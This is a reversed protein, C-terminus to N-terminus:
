TTRIIPRHLTFIYDLIEARVLLRRVLHTRNNVVFTHGVGGPMGAGRIVAPLGSNKPARGREFGVYLYIYETLSTVEDPSYISIEMSDFNHVDKENECQALFIMAGANRAGSGYQDPRPFTWVGDTANYTAGFRTYYERSRPVIEKKLEPMTRRMLVQKFRPNEHMRHVIGFMLLVDSKGSGAGGGYLAEKITWPISLFAAQRRNPRWEDKNYGTTKGPIILEVSM